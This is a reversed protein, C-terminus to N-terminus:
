SKLNILYTEVDKFFEQETISDIVFKERMTVLKQAETGKGEAFWKVWQAYSTLKPSLKQLVKEPQKETKEHQNTYDSDKTDDILFLGNLAYKRAYSSAAGTIQSGDMGKKTEEERAYAAVSVTFDAHSFLATAKVYNRGGICEISDTLFLTCENAILLPKLAELIDEASRYNYNGFNNRQNKPAKLESQIKILKNM